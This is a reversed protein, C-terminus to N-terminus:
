TNTSESNSTLADQTSSGGADPKREIGRRRERRTLAPILDTRSRCKTLLTIPVDFFDDSPDGCLPAITVEKSHHYDPDGYIIEVETGSSYEGYSNNLRYKVM